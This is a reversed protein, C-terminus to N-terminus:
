VNASIVNREESTTCGIMNNDVNDVLVGIHNGYPVNSGDVALTGTADTGIFNGTVNDHGLGTLEVGAGGFRNIILGDVTSNNGGSLVIGNAGAGANAGTLEILIVADDTDNTQTNPSAGP